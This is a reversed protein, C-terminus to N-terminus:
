IILIWISNSMFYSRVVVIKFNGWSKDPSDFHFDSNMKGISFNIVLLHSHHFIKMREKNSQYIICEGFLIRIYLITKTWILSLIEWRIMQDDCSFINTDSQVWVYSSSQVEFQKLNLLDFNLSKWVKSGRFRREKKACM